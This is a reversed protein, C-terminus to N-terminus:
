GVNYALVKGSTLTFATFRGFITSGATFTQGTITDGTINSTLLSFVSDAVFQIAFFDGTIATTGTEYVAGAQGISLNSVEGHGFLARSQSYPLAVAM